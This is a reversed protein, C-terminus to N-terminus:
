SLLAEVCMARVRGKDNKVLWMAMHKLISYEKLARKFSDRSPFIMGITFKPDRMDVGKNFEHRRTGCKVRAGLPEGEEESSASYIYDSDYEDSDLHETPLDTFCSERFGQWSGTPDNMRRPMYEEEKDSEEFESDAM